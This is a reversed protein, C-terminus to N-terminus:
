IVVEFMHRAHWACYFVGAWFVAIASIATVLGVQVQRTHSGQEGDPHEDDGWSVCGELWQGRQIWDEDGVNRCQKCARPSCKLRCHPQHNEGYSCGNWLGRCSQACSNTSEPPPAESESSSKECASARETLSEASSMTRSSPLSDHTSNNVIKSATWAKENPREM